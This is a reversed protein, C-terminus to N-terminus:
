FAYEVGASLGINWGEYAPDNSVTKGVNMSAIVYLKNNPTWDFEVRGGMDVLLLPDPGLSGDEKSARREVYRQSDAYLSSTLGIQRTPSWSFDGEALVFVTDTGETELLADSLYQQDNSARTGASFVVSWDAFYGALGNLEVDASAFLDTRSAAGDFATIESPYIESLNETYEGSWMEAKGTVEFRYGRKISPDYVTGLGIEHASRDQVGAEQYLYYGSYRLYPHVPTNYHPGKWLNYQASWVPRLITGYDEDDLSSSLGSEILLTGAPVPFGLSGQLYESDRLLGGEYQSYKASFNGSLAAYGGEALTSRWSGVGYIGYWFQNNYELSSGLIFTPPFAFVPVAAYFLAVLILLLSKKVYIKTKTDPGMKGRRM